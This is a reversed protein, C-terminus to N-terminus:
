AGHSKNMTAALGAWSHYLVTTGSQAGLAYMQMPFKGHLLENTVSKPVPKLPVDSKNWQRHRQLFPPTYLLLLSDVEQLWEVM